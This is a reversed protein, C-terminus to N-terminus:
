VVIRRCSSSESAFHSDRCRHPPSPISHCMVHFASIWAPAGMAGRVAQATDHGMCNHTHWYQLAGSPKRETWQWHVTTTHQKVMFCHSVTALQLTDCFLLQEFCDGPM